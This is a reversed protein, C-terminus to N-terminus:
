LVVPTEQFSHASPPMLDSCVLHAVTLKPSRGSTRTGRGVRHDQTLETATQGRRERRGGDARDTASHAVRPTSHGRKRETGDGHNMARGRSGNRCLRMRGAERFSVDVPGPTGAAVRGGVRPHPASAAPTARPAPDTASSHRPPVAVPNAIDAVRGVCATPGVAQGERRALPQTPEHRRNGEPSFASRLRSTVDPTCNGRRSRRLMRAATESLVTAHRARPAPATDAAPGRRRAHGVSGANVPRRPRARRRPQLTEEPSSPMRLVPFSVSMTGGSRSRSGASSLPRGSHPKHCATARLGAPAASDRARARSLGGSSGSERGPPVPTM